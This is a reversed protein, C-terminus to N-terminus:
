SRNINFCIQTVCEQVIYKVDAHIVSQKSADVLNWLLMM